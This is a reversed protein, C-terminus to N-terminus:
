KSYIVQIGQEVWSWWNEHGRGDRRTRNRWAQWRNKLGTKATLYLIEADTSGTQVVSTHYPLYAEVGGPNGLGHGGIRRLM